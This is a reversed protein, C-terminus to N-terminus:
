LYRAVAMAAASLLLTGATMVGSGGSGALAISLGGHAPDSANSKSTTHAM